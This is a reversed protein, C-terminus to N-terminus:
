GRWVSVNNREAEANLLDALPVMGKPPDDEDDSLFGEEDADEPRCVKELDFAYAMVTTAMRHALELFFDQPNATNLQIAFEGFLGAHQIALPLLTEIFAKDAEKKGIKSVVASAQLEALELRSWYILTDFQSPLIELYPWWRSAQRKSFEYMVVLVLSLWPDLSALEEPIHQRLESNHLNLIISHPIAFLEESEDIDELAVLVTNADRITTTTTTTM